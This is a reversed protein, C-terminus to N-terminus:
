GDARLEKLLTDYDTRLQPQLEYTGADVRVFRDGAVVTTVVDGKEALRDRLRADFEAGSGFVLWRLPKQERTVRRPEQLAPKWSPVYLWDAVNRQQAPEGQQAVPGLSQEPLGMWYHEKQFPYSPLSVRRRREHSSFGTWNVSAGAVW